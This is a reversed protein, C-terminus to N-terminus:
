CMASKVPATRLPRRRKWNLEFDLAERRVSALRWGLRWDRGNDSLVFRAYPTGTVAGLVPLGYGVEADLRGKRDATIRAIPSPKEM